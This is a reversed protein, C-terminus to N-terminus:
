WSKGKNLQMFVEESIKKLKGEEVLFRTSGQETFDEMSGDYSLSFYGNGTKILQRKTLDISVNNDYTHEKRQGNELTIIGLWLKRKPVIIAKHPLTNKILPKNVLEELISKNTDNTDFSVITENTDISVLVAEVSTNTSNTEVIREEVKVGLSSATENVVPTSQFGTSVSLTKTKLMDVLSNYSIDTKFVSFLGFLLAIFVIILFIFALKKPTRDSHERVFINEKDLEEESKHEAWYDYFGELWESFDLKYDRTLIKVFGLTNVKNLKDYENNLIYQLQKVEIHTKKCVEQLGIKELIKIDKDMPLGIVYYQLPLVSM